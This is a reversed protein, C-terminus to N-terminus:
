IQCQANSNCLLETKIHGQLQNKYLLDNEDKFSLQCLSPMTPLWVKNMIIEPVIVVIIYHKDFYM